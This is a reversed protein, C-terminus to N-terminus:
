AAKVEEKVTKLVVTEEEQQDDIALVLHKGNCNRGCKECAVLSQQQENIIPAVEEFCCALSPAENNEGKTKSSCALAEPSVIEETIVVPTEEESIAAVLNGKDENNDNSVLKTEQIEEENCALISAKEDQAKEEIDCVLVEDLPKEETIVVPTEEESIVAVLNSKDEKDEDSALKNEQTTENEILVVKDAPNITDRVDENAFATLTIISSLACAYLINKLM